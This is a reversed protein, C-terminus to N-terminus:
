IKEKKCANLKLVREFKTKSGYRLVAHLDNMYKEHIATLFFIRELLKPPFRHILFMDIQLLFYIQRIITYSAVLHSTRTSGRM